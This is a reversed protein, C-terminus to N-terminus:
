KTFVSARPCLEQPSPCFGADETDDNSAYCGVFTPDNCLDSDAAIWECNKPCSEEDVNVRCDILSACEENLQAEPDRCEGQCWSCSVALCAEKSSGREPGIPCKEVANPCQGVDISDDPRAFCGRLTPDNCTLGSTELWVCNNAECEEQSENGIPCDFLEACEGELEANPDRCEGDCWSCGGM